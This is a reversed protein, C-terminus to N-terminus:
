NPRNIQVIETKLLYLYYHKFILQYFTTKVIAKVPHLKVKVTLKDLMSVIHVATIQSIRYEILPLLTKELPSKAPYCNLGFLAKIADRDKESANIGQKM